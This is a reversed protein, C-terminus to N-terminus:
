CWDCSFCVECCCNICEFCALATCLQTLAVACQDSLGSCFQIFCMCCCCDLLRSCCNSATKVISGAPVHLKQEESAPPLNETTAMLNGFGVGSSRLFIIKKDDLYGTRELPLVSESAQKGKDIQALVICTYESPIGLQMSMKAIKEELQKSDLLWAQATLTDIQRRAFVREISMGKTKQVKVDIVFNSLDALTGSAKVSNPINGCYRGSIILPSGSLLDPLHIPYLELSDLHELADIAISALIISSASNFLRQMQSSISDVDFAADYYGRGIQALMQLFYHNCYSGIGFTSIRPFNLGGNTLHGKMLNLIQREDEVTGDTILFIFPISDGFKALMEIALKLPLLINTSGEAIFNISIWKVANEIAEKTALHMSSSFLSTNGNFAIINFSDVPNLKYLAALLADKANELPGGQMSGSIDVVFVVERRFVKRHHNIGPFLYFWFMERQDVDDLSPSQLLLSGFIDSASVAYLCSFDNTSWTQVEAEYLFSFKGDRRRLEKLPHSTTKHLVETGTGLSVNLLIKEKKSMKKGVPTVHAPFSFPVSLCCQGDRFSLKHSWSFKISITTGGDVQPVKFTYIQGKLLFGDNPNDTDKADGMTILQTDYSRRTSDVKVGLVSGQEGLPIAIRCDCSKSAMICHVRWTGTVTVFATDLYCDVEMAIGHMHLPIFAPPDRRGHVYPQYSPIDPNDVISPDSIVAYVMPATPLYTELSALKKEMVAPKPASVPVDKGYYIRRSLQLGFDVSKSFEDAM